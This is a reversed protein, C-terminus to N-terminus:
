LSYAARLPAAAVRGQNILVAVQDLLQGYMPKHNILREMQKLALQKRHYDFKTWNSFKNLLACAQNVDLRNNLMIIIDAILQYGKGSRDHFLDFAENTFVELIAFLCLQALPDNMAFSKICDIKEAAPSSDDLIYQRSLEYFGCLSTLWHDVKELATDQVRKSDHYKNTRLVELANQKNQMCSSNDFVRCCIEIYEPKNAKVMTHLCLHQLKRTGSAKPTFGPIDHGSLTEFVQFFEEHLCNALFLEFEDYIESFLEVNIKSCKSAIYSKDPLRLSEAKVGDPIDPNKLVATIMEILYVPMEILGHKAAMELQSQICSTFIYQWTQWLHVHTDRDDNEMQDPCIELTRPMSKGSTLFECTDRMFAEHGISSHLLHLRQLDLSKKPDLRILKIINIRIEAYGFTEELFLTTLYEVIASNISVQKYYNQLFTGFITALMQMYYLDNCTEPNSLVYEEKLHLHQHESSALPQRSSTVFLDYRNIPDHKFHKHHWAITMKLAIMAFEANKIILTRAYLHLTTEKPTHPDVYTDEMYSLSKSVSTLRM